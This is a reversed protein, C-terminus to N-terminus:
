VAYLTRCLFYLTFNYKITLKRVAVVINGELLSMLVVVRLLLVVDKQSISSLFELRPVLFPSLPIGMVMAVTDTVPSRQPKTETVSTKVSTKKLM